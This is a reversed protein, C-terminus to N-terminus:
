SSSERTRLQTWAVQRVPGVLLLWSAAGIWGMVATVIFAWLFQGTLDVILGTVAPAVVGALNGVFGQLGTWTGAMQEGALTQSAAFHHPTTLGLSASAAFLLIVCANDPALGAFLLLTGALTSGICLFTKRVLTPTAGASIWFDSLRGSVIVSAAKVVFAMGGVQATLVLSFHRGHVLYYPLWTLLLYGFYNASFLGVCTGWASGQKLVELIEALPRRTKASTVPKGRPRWVFWFILWPLSILGLSIFLVRWGFRGLLLGGAFTAFALGCGQGAGIFANAIGRHHEPFHNAFINAYAPYAVAEAIGLLLRLAMLAAFGHVFGTVTTAISWLFFGIALIWTADFRDILSGVPLLCLSNTWFFSSLLIGLQSASLHLEDKLLPAAISLNGRDVFAIFVSFM